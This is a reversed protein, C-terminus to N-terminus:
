NENSYIKKELSELRARIDKDRDQVYSGGAGIGVLFCILCFLLLWGISNDLM